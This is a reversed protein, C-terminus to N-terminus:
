SAWTVAHGAGHLKLQKAMQQGGDAVFHPNDELLGGERDVDLFPAVIRAGDIVPMAFRHRHPVMHGDMQTRHRLRHPGHALFEIKLRAVHGDHIIREATASMQGVDRRHAPNKEAAFPARTKKDGIASMMGVHPPM